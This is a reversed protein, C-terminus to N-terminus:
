NAPDNLEEETYVDKEQLSQSAIPDLVVDDVWGSMIARNYLIGWASIIAMFGQDDADLEFDVNGALKESNIVERIRFSQQQM